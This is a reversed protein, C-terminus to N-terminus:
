CGGYIINHQECLAKMEARFAATTNFFQVRITKIESGPARIPAAVEEPCPDQEVPPPACTSAPIMPPAALRIKEQQEEFRTKEALAESMNLNRLYADIVFSENELKMARLISIDNRARNLTEMIDKSYQTATCTKNLWRDDWIKSIPVLDILEKANTRYFQDIVKRKEEREATEFSKIQADLYGSVTTVKSILEKAQKEFADFPANWAKKIRKREDDLMKSLSNLAARHTKGVSVTDETLVISKYGALQEDLEISLIDFNTEISPLLSFDARVEFNM